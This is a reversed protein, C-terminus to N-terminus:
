SKRMKRPFEKSRLLLMSSIMPQRSLGYSHPPARKSMPLSFLVISRRKRHKSRRQSLAIPLMMLKMLFNRCPAVSEIDTNITQNVVQLDLTVPNTM